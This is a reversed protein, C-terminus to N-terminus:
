EVSGGISWPFPRTRASRPLAALRGIAESVMMALPYMFLRKRVGPVYRWGPRFGAVAAEAATGFLRFVRQRNIRNGTEGKMSIQEVAEGRLRVGRRAAHDAISMTIEGWAGRM